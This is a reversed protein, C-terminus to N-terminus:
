AASVREPEDVQKGMGMMQMVKGAVAGLAIVVFGVALLVWNLYIVAICGILFGLTIIISATWAAPTQGHNDHHAAEAM